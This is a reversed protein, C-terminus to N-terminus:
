QTRRPSLHQPLEIIAVLELGRYPLPQKNKKLYTPLERRQNRHEPKLGAAKTLLSVLENLTLNMKLLQKCCWYLLRQNLLM